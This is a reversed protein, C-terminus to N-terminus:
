PDPVITEFMGVTKKLLFDKIWLLLLYLLYGHYRIVIFNFRPIPNVRYNTGKFFECM